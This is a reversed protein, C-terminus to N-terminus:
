PIPHSLPAVTHTSRARRDIEDRAHHVTAAWTLTGLGLTMLVFAAMLSHIATRQQHRRRIGILSRLGIFAISLLVLLTLVFSPVLMNKYTHWNQSQDALTTITLMVAAETLCWWFAGAVRPWRSSQWRAAQSLGIAVIIERWAWWTTRGQACREILDGIFSEGHYNSGLRQLLWLGLKPLVRRTM